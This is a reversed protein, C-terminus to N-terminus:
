SADAERLREAIQAKTGYVAIGREDAAAKLETLTMGAYLDPADADDDADEETTGTLVDAVVAPVDVTSAEPEAEPEPTPHGQDAEAGVLPPSVDADPSPDAARAYTPGRGVHNKPM